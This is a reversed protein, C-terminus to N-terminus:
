CGGVALVACTALVPYKRLVNKVPELSEPLVEAAKQAGEKATEWVAAPQAGFVSAYAQVAQLISNKIEM